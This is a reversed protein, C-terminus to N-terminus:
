VSRRATTRSPTRALTSASLSLLQSVPHLTQYFVNQLGSGRGWSGGQPEEVGNQGLPPKDRQGDETADLVVIAAGGLNLSSQRGSTIKWCSCTRGNAAQM